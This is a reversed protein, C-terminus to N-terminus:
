SAPLRVEVRVDAKVRLTGMLGRYPEIGFDPQHLWLESQWVDAARQARLAVPRTVGHLALEGRVSAASTGAEVSTSVFRIDPYRSPELVELIHREIDRRDGPSLARPDHRGDRVAAVVALSTPDFSAEVRQRDGAVDIRLRRVELALDHGVRALLGERFIYVFCRAHAAEYSPM